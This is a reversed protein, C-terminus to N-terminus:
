LINICGLSWDDAIIMTRLYVLTLFEDRSVNHDNNIIDNFSFFSGVSKSIKRFDVNLEFLHTILLRISIKDGM